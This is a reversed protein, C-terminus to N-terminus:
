EDQMREIQRQIKFYKIKYIDSEWHKYHTIQEILNLVDAIEEKIHEDPHEYIVAQELERLEEVLKKLQNEYGYHEIISQQMPNEKVLRLYAEASEDQTAFKNWVDEIKQM